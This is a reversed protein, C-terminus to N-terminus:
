TEFILKEIVGSTNRQVHSEKLSMSIFAFLTNRWGNHLFSEWQRVFIELQPTDSLYGHEIQTTLM